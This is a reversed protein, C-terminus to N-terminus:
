VRFDNRNTEKKILIHFSIVRAPFKDLQRACRSQGRGRQRNPRLGAAFDGDSKNADRVDVRRTLM